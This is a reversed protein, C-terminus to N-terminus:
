KEELSLVYVVMARADDISIRPHSSMVPYGWVGFGGSIVKRALMDIYVEQIPYRRAIDSFSPGKAKDQEKHCQYCDSYAVLVQGKKVLASDVKEDAGPIVYFEKEPKKRPLRREPEKSGCSELLLLFCLLTLIWTPRMLILKPSIDPASRFTFFFDLEHSNEGLTM